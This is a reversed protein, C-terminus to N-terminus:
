YQFLNTLLHRYNKVLIKQNGFKQDPILFLLPSIAIRTVASVFLILKYIWKTTQGYHKQFFQIKTKYLQLFMETQNQKTSQGGYHIIESRPIWFNKWGAKKLRYNLDVEETYMFFSNDLFGVQDLFSKRVLLSAGQINDVEHHHNINWQQMPYSSIRLISDLHFLRWFERRLTPFPYCSPQLSGDPNLLRSGCAATQPNKDLFEVLPALADNVLVTDPNLLWIFRGQSKVIAQNNATAFGLNQQNQIWHVEPFQSQIIQQSGDTSANDVIWVEFKYKSHPQYLSQLCQQLFSSVNYSVIIVSVDVSM